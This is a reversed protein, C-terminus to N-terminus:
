EDTGSEKALEEVEIILNKVEQLKRSAKKYFAPRQQVKQMIRNFLFRVSENSIEMAKTESLADTM